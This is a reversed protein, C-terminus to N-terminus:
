KEVEVLSRQLETMEEEIQEARLTLDSAKRRLLTAAAKRSEVYSALDHDSWKFIYHKFTTAESM